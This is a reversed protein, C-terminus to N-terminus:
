APKQGDHGHQRQHGCGYVRSVALTIDVALQILEGGDGVLEGSILLGLSLGLIDHGALGNGLLLLLEKVRHLLLEESMNVVQAISLRLSRGDVLRLSLDDLIGFRLRESIRVLKESLVVGNEKLSCTTMMMATSSWSMTRGWRTTSSRTMSGWASRCLRSHFSTDCMGLGGDLSAHLM